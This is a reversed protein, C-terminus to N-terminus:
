RVGRPAQQRSQETRSRFRRFHGSALAEEPARGARCGRRSAGAVDSFGSVAARAAQDQRRAPAIRRRSGRLDWFPNASDSAEDRGHVAARAGIYYVMETSTPTIGPSGFEYHLSESDTIPLCLSYVSLLQRRNFGGGWVTM